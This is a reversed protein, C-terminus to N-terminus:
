CTQHTKTKATTMKLKFTYIPLSNTSRCHRETCVRYLPSPHRPGAVKLTRSSSVMMISWNGSEGAAPRTYWDLLFPTSWQLPQQLWHSPAILLKEPINSCKGFVSLCRGKLCNGPWFADPASWGNLLLHRAMKSMGVVESLLCFYTVNIKDVTLM